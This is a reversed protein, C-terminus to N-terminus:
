KTIELGECYADPVRELIRDKAMRMLIQLLIGLFFFLIAVFITALKRTFHQGSTIPLNDWNLEDPEFLTGVKVQYGLFKTDDM